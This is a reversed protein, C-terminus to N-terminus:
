MVKFPHIVAQTKSWIHDVRVGLEELLPPENEFDDVGASMGDGAGGMMGGYGGGAYGGMGYGPGSSYGM